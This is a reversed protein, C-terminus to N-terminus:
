EEGRVTANVIGESLNQAMPLLEKVSISGEASVGVQFAMEWDSSALKVNATVLRDTMTAVM